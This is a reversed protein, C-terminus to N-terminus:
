RKPTTLPAVPDALANGVDQNPPRLADLALYLHLHRKGWARLKSEDSRDDQPRRRADHGAAAGDVQVQYGTAGYVHLAGRGAGM